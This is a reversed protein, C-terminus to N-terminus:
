DKGLQNAEKGMLNESQNEKFSSGLCYEGVLTRTEGKRRGAYFKEPGGAQGAWNFSAWGLKVWYDEGVNAKHLNWCDLNFLILLILCQSLLLSSCNLHKLLSSTSTGLLLNSHRIALYSTLCNHPASCDSFCVCKMEAQTKIELSRKKNNFEFTTAIILYRTSFYFNPLM